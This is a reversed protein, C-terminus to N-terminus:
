VVSKRDLRDFRELLDVFKQRTNKCSDRVVREDRDHAIVPIDLVYVAAMGHIGGERQEDAMLM